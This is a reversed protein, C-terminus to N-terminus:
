PSWLVLQGARYRYWHIPANTWYGQSVEDFRITGNIGEYTIESLPTDTQVSLLALRTADYTLTALLGPEPAFQNMSLYRTRFDEDPLTSSSAVQIDSLDARLKVFQHLAFVESGVIPADLQAAELVDRTDAVNLGDRFVSNFAGSDLMYSYTGAPKAGWYGVILMPTLGLEQQVEPATANFGMLLVLEVSPDFVLARARETASAITGGDDIPMLDITQIGSEALALQAAYLADYGIERYRGEFPALLVIRQVNESRFVACGSIMWLLLLPLVRRAGVMVIRLPKRVAM